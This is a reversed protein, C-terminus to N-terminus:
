DVPGNDSDGNGGGQDGEDEDASESNNDDGSDENPSEDEDVPGDPGFNVPPGNNEEEPQNEDEATEDEDEAVLTPPIDECLEPNLICEDTDDLEDDDACYDAEVGPPCPPCYEGPQCPGPEPEEECLVGPSLNPDCSPLGEDEFIIEIFIDIILLENIRKEVVNRTEENIVTTSQNPPVIVLVTEYGGEIDGLTGLVNLTYVGPLIGSLSFSNRQDTTQILDITQKQENVLKAKTIAFGQVSGDNFIILNQGQAVQIVNNFDITFGSVKSIDGGQRTAKLPIEHAASDSSGVAFLKPFQEEQAIATIPLFTLVM